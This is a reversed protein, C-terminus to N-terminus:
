SGGATAVGTKELRGSSPSAWLLYDHSLENGEKEGHHRDATAGGLFIREFLQHIGDIVPQRQFLFRGLQVADIGTFQQHVALDGEFFAPLDEGVPDAVDALGGARLVLVRVLDAFHDLIDLVIQHFFRPGADGGDEMLFGESSQGGLARRGIGLGDADGAGPIGIEDAGLRLPRGRVHAGHALLVGKGGHQVEDAGRVPGPDLLGAPLVAVQGGGHAAGEHRAQLGLSELFAYGGGGLMEEAVAPGVRERPLIEIFLDQERM